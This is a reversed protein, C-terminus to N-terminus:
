WCNRVFWLRFKWCQLALKMYEVELWKCWVRVTLYAYEWFSIRDDM